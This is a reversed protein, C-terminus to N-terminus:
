LNLKIKLEKIIEKNCELLISDKFKVLFFDYMFKGQPSLLSSYIGRNHDIIYIDNSIIGQLFKLCDNGTIKLFGNSNNHFYKKKNLM